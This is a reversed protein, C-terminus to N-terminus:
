VIDHKRDRAGDQITQVTRDVHELRQTFRKWAQALSDHADQEQATKRWADSPTFPNRMM